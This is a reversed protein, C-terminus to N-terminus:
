ATVVENEVLDVTVCTRSRVASMLASPEVTKTTAAVITTTPPLLQCLEAILSTPETVRRADVAVIEADGLVAVALDCLWVEETTLAEMESLPDVQTFPIGSATALRQITNRISSFGRRNPAVRDLRLQEALQDKLSGSMVPAGTLVLSSSRRLAYGDYPM